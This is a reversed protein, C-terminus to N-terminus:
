IKVPKLGRNQLCINRSHREIKQLNIKFNKKSIYYSFDYRLGDLSSGRYAEPNYVFVGLNSLQDFADAPFNGIIPKLSFGPGSDGDSGNIQWFDSESFVEWILKRFSLLELRVQEEAKDFEKDLLLESTAEAISRYAQLGEAKVKNSIMEITEPQSVAVMLRSVESLLYTVPYLYIVDELADGALKLVLNDPNNLWPAYLDNEIIKFKYDKQLGFLDAIRTATTYLFHPFSAKSSIFVADVKETLCIRALEDTCFGSDDTGVELVRLGASALGMRLLSDTQSPIIVVGASDKFILGVSKILLQYDHTYYFKEPEHFLQNYINFRKALTEILATSTSNELGPPITRSLDLKLKQYLKVINLVHLKPHKCHFDAYFHDVTLNVESNPWKVTSLKGSVIILYGFTQMIRLAKNVNANSLSTYAQLNKVSALKSGQAILRLDIQKILYHALARSKSIHSQETFIFGKYIEIHDTINKSM